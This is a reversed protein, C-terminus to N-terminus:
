RYRAFRKKWPATMTNGMSLPAPLFIIKNVHNNLMGDLLNISGVVNNQFFRQPDSTSHLVVTEAAMHMVAEIKYQRFINELTQTDRLDAQVFDAESIVAERHGQSLNDLVVVTHHQKILEEAVVSGVYGAGGTVLINM